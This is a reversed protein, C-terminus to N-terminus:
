DRLASSVVEDIHSVWGHGKGSWGCDCSVVRNGARDLRVHAVHQPLLSRAVSRLRLKAERYTWDRTIDTSSTM